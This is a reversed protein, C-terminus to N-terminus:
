TFNFQFAITNEVQQSSPKSEEYAYLFIDGLQQSRVVKLRVPSDSKNDSQGKSIETPTPAKTM